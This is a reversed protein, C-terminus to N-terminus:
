FKLYPPKQNEGYHVKPNKWYKEVFRDGTQWLYRYAIFVGIIIVPMTIIAALGITQVAVSMLKEPLDTFLGKSDTEFIWGLVILAVLVSHLLLGFSVSLFASAKWRRSVEGESKNSAFYVFSLFIILEIVLAVVYHPLYYIIKEM